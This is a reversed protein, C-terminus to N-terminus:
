CIRGEPPLITAGLCKKSCKFRRIRQLPAYKPRSGAHTITRASLSHQYLVCTSSNVSGTKLMVTHRGLGIVARM